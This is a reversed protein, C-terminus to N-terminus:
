RPARFTMRASGPLEERATVEGVGDVHGAVLHGGLEDGFTLARELNIHRGARWEGATTLALTEAAADVTFWTHGHEEGAATVTLCIGACCISAGDKISARPYSCAIKIRNLTDGQAAVSMVEGIDSVIGTFM